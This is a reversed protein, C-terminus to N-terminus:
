RGEKILEFAGSNSAPWPAHYVKTHPFHAAWAFWFLPQAPHQALVAGALPGHTAEGFLNWVSGTQEDVLLSGQRQFTLWRGAAMPSFLAASGVDRSADIKGRDLASATGAHWVAVVPWGSVVDNIVGHRALVSFPYAVPQGHVLGALVRETAPLRVDVPGAYRVPQPSRDYGIYPNRGYSLPPLEADGVLVAGEPFREQFQGFGVLRAPIVDLTTGALAGVLAVGTLQQWWSQTQDDWLILGSHRLMGTTGFRLAVGNVQRDYVLPSNCLACFTVAIPRDGIQDNVVGHHLLVALPYARASEALRVVIVPSREGLWTVRAAPEWRPHDIPRLADREAVPVFESLPTLTQSFDTRWESGLDRTYQARLWWGGLGFGVVVALGVILPQYRSVTKIM